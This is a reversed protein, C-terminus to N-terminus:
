ESQCAIETEFELLQKLRWCDASQPPTQYTNPAKDAVHLTVGKAIKLQQSVECYILDEIAPVETSPCLCINNCEFTAENQLM